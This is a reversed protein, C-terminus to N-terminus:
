NLLTLKNLTKPFISASRKFTQSQMCYPKIIALSQAYTTSGILNFNIYLERYALFCCTSTPGVILSPIFIVVSTEGPEINPGDRELVNM